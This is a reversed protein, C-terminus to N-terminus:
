KAGRALNQFRQHTHISVSAGVLTVYQESGALKTAKVNALSTSSSSGLLM